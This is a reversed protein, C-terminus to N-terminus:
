WFAIHQLQWCVSSELLVGVNYHSFQIFALQSHAIRARCLVLADCSCVLPQTLQGPGCESSRSIPTSLPVM